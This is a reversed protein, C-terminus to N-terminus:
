HTNYYEIAAKTTYILDCEDNNLAAFLEYAAGNIRTIRGLRKQIRSHEELTALATQTSPICLAKGKVSSSGSSKGALILETSYYTNLLTFDASKEGAAIGGWACDINGSNLEIYADESRIPQVALTWGLKECVARALEIDFGTYGSGDYFSLPVSEMDAGIIFNRKAIYGLEDLADADKEYSVASDSGFWKSSLEAIKGEYALEKLARDVYHYTSDGNRFGISYEISGLSAASKYKGGSDGGCACLALAMAAALIICLIRKRM